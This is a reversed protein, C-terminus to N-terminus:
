NKTRKPTTETRCNSTCYTGTMCPVYNTGVKYYTCNNASTVCIYNVGIQGALQYGGNYYYQTYAQCTQTVKLSTAFAGGISLAIAMTMISM